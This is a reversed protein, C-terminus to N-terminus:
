FIENYEELRSVKHLRLEADQLKSQLTLIQEHQLRNEDKQKDLEDELLTM